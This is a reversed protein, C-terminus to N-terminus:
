VSVKIKEKINADYETKKFVQLFDKLRLLEFGKFCNNGKLGTKFARNVQDKTFFM